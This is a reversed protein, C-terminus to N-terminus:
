KSKLPLNALRASVAKERELRKIRATELRVAEAREALEEPTPDDAEMESLEEDEVDQNVIDIDEPDLTTSGMDKTSVKHPAGLDIGGCTPYDDLHYLDHDDKYYRLNLDGREVKKGLVYKKWAKILISIREDKTGLGTGTRSNMTAAIAYRVERSTDTPSKLATYFGQAKDMRGFDVSGATESKTPSDHYLDGDSNSTALLYLLGSALGATLFDDLDGKTNIDCVFRVCELLRQHAEVFACGENHSRIPAFADQKAGTREWLLRVAYNTVNCVKKRASQPYGAFYPSQYLVDVFTRPKGTNLTNIVKRDEEIGFVVFKHVEVQTPWTAMVRSLNRHDPSLGQRIQEALKLSILTHQGDLISGYKGIVITEGNLQWDRTLHTNTLKALVAPYIPRNTTNNRCVILKGTVDKFMGGSEVEEWGLWEDVQKITIPNGPGYLVCKPSPYVVKRSGNASGNSQHGSNVSGNLEAVVGHPKRATQTSRPM